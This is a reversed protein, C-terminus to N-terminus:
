ITGATGDPSSIYLRVKDFQWVTGSLANNRYEIEVSQGAAYLRKRTYHSPAGASVQDFDLELVRSRYANYVFENGKADQALWRPKDFGTWRTTWTYGNGTRTLLDGNADYAM